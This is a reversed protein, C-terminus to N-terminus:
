RRRSGVIIQPWRGIAREHFETLAPLGSTYVAIDLAEAECGAHRAGGGYGARVGCVRKAAESLRDHLTGIRGGYVPELDGYCVRVRRTNAATAPVEAFKRACHGQRVAAVTLMPKRASSPRAGPIADQGGALEFSPDVPCGAHVTVGHSAPRMGCAQAMGARGSRYVKVDGAEVVPVAGGTRADATRLIRPQSADGGLLEPLAARGSPVARVVQARTYREAHSLGPGDAAGDAKGPQAGAASVLAAFATSMVTLSRM